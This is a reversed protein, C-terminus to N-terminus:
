IKPVWSIGAAGKLFDLLDQTFKQAALTNSNEAQEHGPAGLAKWTEDQIIQPVMIAAHPREIFRLVLEALGKTYAPELPPLSPGTSAIIGTASLM